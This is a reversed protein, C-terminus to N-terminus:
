QPALYLPLFYQFKSHIDCRLLDNKQLIMNAASVSSFHNTFSLNLLILAHSMCAGILIMSFFMSCLQSASFNFPTDKSVMIEALGIVVEYFEIGIRIVFHPGM